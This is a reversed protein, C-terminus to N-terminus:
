DDQKDLVDIAGRLRAWALQQHEHFANWLTDESMVSYEGETRLDVDEGQEIRECFERFKGQFYFQNLEDMIERSRQWDRQSDQLKEYLQLWERYLAQIRNIENQM